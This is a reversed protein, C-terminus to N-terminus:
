PTTSSCNRRSGRSFREQKPAQRATSLSWVAAALEHAQAVGVRAGALNCTFLSWGTVLCAAILRVCFDQV